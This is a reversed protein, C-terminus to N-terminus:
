AKNTLRSLFKTALSGLDSQQSAQGNPAFHQIAMPLITALATSVIAPSVGAHEAIKELFGSNGLGQQVQEPTAEAQGSAWNNVHQGMGNATLSNIIGQIGEPHATLAQVFGGAVKATDSHSDDGAQGALSQLTDLIGM